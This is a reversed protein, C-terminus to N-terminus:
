YVFQGTHLAAAPCDNEEWVYTKLLFKWVQVLPSHSVCLKNYFDVTTTSAGAFIHLPDIPFGDLGGVL